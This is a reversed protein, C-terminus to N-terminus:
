RTFTFNLFIVWSTYKDYVNYTTYIHTGRMEILSNSKSNSKMLKLKPKTLETNQKIKDIFRTNKPQLIWLKTGM